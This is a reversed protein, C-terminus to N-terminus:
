PLKWIVTTALWFVTAAVTLFAISVAAGIVDVRRDTIRPDPALWFRLARTVVPMVIWTLLGVSLVNGLLLSQWLDAGPWIESIGLTLLVVTPYLGVLVSLATKWTSPSGADSSGDSLSFWSGFPSSVRHVDFDKFQEGAALLAARQPSQLWAELYEASGFRFVATWDAQVGPVPPYLEQGLFGPFAHEADTMQQHFTRFAEEQGARVRHSVVVTVPDQDRKDVLVQQRIPAAFLDAGRELRDRRTASSLWAELSALSDFRYIITWENGADVPEIVETGLFGVFSAVDRNLQTQWSRFDATREPRVRQAIVATVPAHAPSENATKM